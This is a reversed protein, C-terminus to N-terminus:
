PLKLFLTAYMCVDLVHMTIIVCFELYRGYKVEQFLASRMYGVFDTFNVMVCWVNSTLICIVLCSTKWHIKQMYVM